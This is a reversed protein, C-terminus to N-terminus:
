CTKYESFEVKVQQGNPKNEYVNVDCSGSKEALLIAEYSKGPSTEFAVLADCMQINASYLSSVGRFDVDRVMMRFNQTAEVTLASNGSVATIKNNKSEAMKKQSIVGQNRNCKLSDSAKL